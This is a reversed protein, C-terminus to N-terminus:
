APSVLSTEYTFLDHELSPLSGPLSSVDTTFLTAQATEELTVRFQYVTGTQLVQGPVMALIALVSSCRQTRGSATTLCCRTSIFQLFRSPSSTRGFQQLEYFGFHISCSPPNHPICYSM